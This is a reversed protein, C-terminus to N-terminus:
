RRLCYDSNVGALVSSRPHTTLSFPALGHAGSVPPWTALCARIEHSARSTWTSVEPFNGYRNEGRHFYFGGSNRMGFLHDFSDAQGMLERLRFGRCHEEFATMMPTGVEARISDKPHITNHWVLVNLGVTSNAERVAADSLLPSNGGTIRKVLEPGLWFFPTTKLEQLFDDSVFV